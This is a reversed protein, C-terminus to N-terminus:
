GYGAQYGRHKSAGTHCSHGRLLLSSRWLTNKRNEHAAFLMVLASRVTAKVRGGVASDGPGRDGGARGLCKIHVARYGVLPVLVPRPQVVHNPVTLPRMMSECRRSQAWKARATGPRAAVKMARHAIPQGVLRSHRLRPRAAVTRRGSNGGWPVRLRHRRPGVYEGHCRNGAHAWMSGMTGTAQTPAYETGPCRNGDCHVSTSVSQDHWMPGNSSGM